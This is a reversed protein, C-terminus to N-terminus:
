KGCWGPTFPRPPRPVCRMLTYGRRAINLYQGSDWRAHTSVLFYDYGNRAAAAWYLAHGALFALAPPVTLEAVRRRAPGVRMAGSLAAAM